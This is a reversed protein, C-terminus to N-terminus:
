ATTAHKAFLFHNFHKYVARGRYHIDSEDLETVSAIPAVLTHHQPQAMTNISRDLDLFRVPRKLPRFNVHEMDWWLPHIGEMGRKASVAVHHGSLYMGM